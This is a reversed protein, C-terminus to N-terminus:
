ETQLRCAFIQMGHIPNTPFAFLLGTIKPWKLAASAFGKDFTSAKREEARNHQQVSFKIPNSLHSASIWNLVGGKPLSVM